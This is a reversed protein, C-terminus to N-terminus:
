QPPQLVRFACPLLRVLDPDGIRDIAQPALAITGPGAMVTRAAATRSSNRQLAAKSTRLRAGAFASSAAARAPRAVVGVTRHQQTSQASTTVRTLPQARLLSLLGMATHALAVFRVPGVHLPAPPTKRCGGHGPGGCSGPV